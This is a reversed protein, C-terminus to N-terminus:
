VFYKQDKVYRFLMCKFTKLESLLLALSFTSESVKKTLCNPAKHLQWWLPIEGATIWLPEVARYTTNDSNKTTKAFLKM